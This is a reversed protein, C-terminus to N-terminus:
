KTSSLATPSSLPTITIRDSEGSATTYQAVWRAIVASSVSKGLRLPVQDLDAAMERASQYRNEVSRSLAKAVIADVEPPVDPRLSSALPIPEDLVARALAEPSEGQFVRSLTLAEFLVLGLAFIDSRHDSSENRLREPAAYYLKGVFSGPATHQQHDDSICIGFDGLKVAGDLSLLINSPSVDRHIVPSPQGNSDRHEHAAALGLCLESAIKCAIEISLSHNEARSRKLLERLDNGRVYEMVIYYDGRDVGFDLVQVINPHSLRASVRAENMFQKLQSEAEGRGGRSMQKLVVEKAFGSPGIQRALYVTGMGGEGIRRILRYKGLVLSGDLVGTGFAARRMDPGTPRERLYGQVEPSSSVAMMSSILALGQDRHKLAVPRGCKRCPLAHGGTAVMEYTAADLEPSWEEGCGNCRTEAIVSSVKARVGQRLLEPAVAAGVVEPLRALRLSLGQTGLFNALGAGGTGALGSVAGMVVVIEGQLGEELHKFARRDNLEGSLWLATVNGEVEKDIRFAAKGKRDIIANAAPPPKPPPVARVYRFYVEPLSEFEMEGGCRCQITGPAMSEVVQFQHRLDILEQRVDGCNPCAYPAYFSVLQGRGGFGNVMNFQATMAPRCNIFCWYEASLTQLACKWDRVGFSTIREIGDLDFVVVQGLGATLEDPRFDEGVVGKLHVLTAGGYPVRKVDFAMEDSEVRESGVSFDSFGSSAQM